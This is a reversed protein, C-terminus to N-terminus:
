LCRYKMWLRCERNSSSDGIHQNDEIGTLGNDGNTLDSSIFASPEDLATASSGLDEVPIYKFIENVPQKV